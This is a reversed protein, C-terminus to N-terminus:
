DAGPTRYRRNERLVDILVFPLVVPWAFYVLVGFPIVWWPDPLQVKRWSSTADLWSFYAISALGLVVGGLYIAAATAIAINM